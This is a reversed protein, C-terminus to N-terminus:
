RTSNDILSRHLQRVIERDSRQQDALTQAADRQAPPALADALRALAPGREHNYWVATAVPDSGKPALALAEYVQELAVLLEHYQHSDLSVEGSRLRALAARIERKSSM